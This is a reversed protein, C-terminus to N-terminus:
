SGLPLSFIKGLNKRQTGSVKIIREGSFILHEGHFGWQHSLSGPSLCFGLLFLHYLCSWLYSQPKSLVISKPKLYRRKLAQYLWYVGIVALISFGWYYPLNNDMPLGYWKLQSFYNNAVWKMSYAANPYVLCAAAGTLMIAPAKFWLTALVAGGYLLLSVMLMLLDWSLISLRSIGAQHVAHLQLPLALAVGLYVLIPVGAFKGSVITGAKQPSLRIFDLTGRREEQSFNSALLYVGGLALVYVMTWSFGVSVHEWWRPWAILTDGLSDTVCLDGDIELCYEQALGSITPLKAVFSMLVLFQSIVSLAITILVNRWNLRSKLERLLQPNLGDWQNLDLNLV